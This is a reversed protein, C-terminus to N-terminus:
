HMLEKHLEIVPLVLRYGMEHNVHLIPANAGDNMTRVRKCGLEVAQAITEYKLARAIGRGRAAPSTGTFSTWPLGRNPPYAVVSMGVIAEGERAIWFRDRRVGPNSFWSEHWQDFTEARWPMTTPIDREAAMSLEYLKHMSEPDEDREVTLMTVGQDRMLTRQRAAEELLKEGASELDLESMNQRRVESYGLEGFARLETALDERLRTVAIAAGESRLWMEATGVLDDFAPTSWLQHSLRPQLWGYRQRNEEWDDHGAGVFAIARGDQEAVLRIMVQTSENRTWWFRLMDPDRPDEPDFTSDLDAVIQADDLTAPRLDLELRQPGPM